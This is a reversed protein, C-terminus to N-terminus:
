GGVSPYIGNLRAENHARILDNMSYIHSSGDVKSTLAYIGVEIDSKLLYDKHTGWFHEAAEIRSWKIM